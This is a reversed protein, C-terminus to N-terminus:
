IYIGFFVFWHGIWSWSWSWSWITSKKVSKGELQFKWYYRKSDGILKAVM